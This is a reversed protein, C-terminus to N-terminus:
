PLQTCIVSAIASARQVASVLTVRRFCNHELKFFSLAPFAPQLLPSCCPGHLTAQCDANEESSLTANLSAELCLFLTMFVLHLSFALLFTSSLDCLPTVLPLYLGPLLLQPCSQRPTQPSERPVDSGREQVWKGLKRVRRTKVQESKCPTLFFFFVGM